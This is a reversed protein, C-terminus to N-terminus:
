RCSALSSKLQGPFGVRLAWMSDTLARSRASHKFVCTKSDSSSVSSVRVEHRLSALTTCGCLARPMSIGMPVRQARDSSHLGSIARTVRLDPPMLVPHLGLSTPVRRVSSDSKLAALDRAVAAGGGSHSLGSAKATDRCCLLSGDVM